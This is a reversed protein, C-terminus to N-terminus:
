SNSLSVLLFRFSVGDGALGWYQDTSRAIGPRERGETESCLTPSCRASEPLVLFIKLAMKRRLCALRLQRGDPRQGLEEADLAHHEEGVPLADGDGHGLCAGSWPTGSWSSRSRELAGRELVGRELTGRELAGRERWSREKRHPVGTILRALSREGAVRRSILVVIRGACCKSKATNQGAMRMGQLLTERCLQALDCGARSVVINGESNNPQAM